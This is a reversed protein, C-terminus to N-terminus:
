IQYYKTALHILTDRDANTPVYISEGLDELKSEMQNIAKAIDFSSMKAVNEPTYPNKEMEIESCNNFFSKTFEKEDISYYDITPVSFQLEFNEEHFDSLNGMDLRHGEESKKLVKVIDDFSLFHTISDDDIEFKGFTIETNQVMSYYAESFDNIISSSEAETQAINIADIIEQYDEEIDEIAQELSYSLFDDTDDQSEFGLQRIKLKIYPPLKEAADSAPTDAYDHDINESPPYYELADSNGYETIFEDISYSYSEFRGDSLYSPAENPHFDFSMREMFDEMTATFVFPFNLQMGDDAHIAKTLIDIPLLSPITKYLEEKLYAPFDGNDIGWENKFDNVPSDNSYKEELLLDKIDDIYDAVSDMIMNPILEDHRSSPYETLWKRVDERSFMLYVKEDYTRPKSQVEDLKQMLSDDMGYIRYHTPFDIIGVIHEELKIIMDDPLFRFNEPYRIRNDILYVSWRVFDNWEMNKSADKINKSFHPEMKIIGDHFKEPVLKVMEVYPFVNAKVRDLLNNVTERTVGFMEFQEGVSALNKKNVVLEKGINPELHSMRFNNEPMYGGGEIGKIIDLKLLEIIFHHYKEAPKTNGRGKTETLFGNPNLIFTLRPRYYQVKGVMVDKSRLSIIKDGTYKRPSNGCHGMAAAEESCAARNLMMWYYEKGDENFSLLIQDGSQMRALGNSKEKFEKELKTLDEIVQGYTQNSFIYDQIPTYPIGMFHEFSIQINRLSLVSSMDDTKIYKSLMQKLKTFEPIKELVTISHSLFLPSNLLHHAMYVRSVRCVWQQRDLKYKSVFDMVSEKDKKWLREVVGLNRLTTHSDETRMNLLKEGIIDLLNSVPFFMEEGRKRSEDLRQEFLKLFKM